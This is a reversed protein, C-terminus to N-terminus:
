LCQRPVSLNNRFTEYIQETYNNVDRLSSWTKWKKKNVVNENPKVLYSQM